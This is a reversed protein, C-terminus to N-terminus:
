DICFYEGVLGDDNKIQLGVVIHQKENNQEPIINM